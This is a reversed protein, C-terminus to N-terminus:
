TACNILHLKKLIFNISTNRFKIRSNKQVQLSDPFDNVNIFNREFITQLLSLILNEILESNISPTTNLLWLIKKQWFLYEQENLEVWFPRQFDVNTCLLSQTLRTYASLSLVVSDSGTLGKTRIDIQLSHPFVMVSNAVYNGELWVEGTKNARPFILTVTQEPAEFSGIIPLNVKDSLVSFFSFENDAIFSDFLGSGIQFIHQKVGFAKMTEDNEEISSFHLTRKPPLYHEVNSFDM